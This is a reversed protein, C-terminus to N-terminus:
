SQEHQVPLLLKGELTCPLCLVTAPSANWTVHIALGADLNDRTPLLEAHLSGLSLGDRTVKSTVEGDSCRVCFHLHLAVGPCCRGGFREHGVRLVQWVLLM